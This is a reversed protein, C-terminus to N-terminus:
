NHGSGPQGPVAAQVVVAKEGNLRQFVEFHREAAPLAGPVRLPEIGRDREDRYSPDHQVGIVGTVDVSGYSAPAATTPKPPTAPSPPPPSSDRGCASLLLVVVAGALTAKTM